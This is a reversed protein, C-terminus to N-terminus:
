SIDVFPKGRVLRARARRHINPYGPVAHRLEDQMLTHLEPLAHWPVAPYAHHETHYPMNWMLYRVFTNTNTTRTRDLVSGEHPLGSHEAILFSALIGHGVLQALLVSALGPYWLLGPVFWAAHFLCCLRAQWQARGVVQPKLYAMHKSILRKPLPLALIGMVSIKFFVLPIGSLFAVYMPLSGTFAPTTVGFPAIEPDLKPDHTHRHHAFHFHRFWEPVYFIITSSIIAVIDNASRHSFATRHITEHGVAFMPCVCLAFTIAGLAWLGLHHEFSLSMVLAAGVLLGFQISFRSVGAGSRRKILSQVQERLASSSHHFSEDM